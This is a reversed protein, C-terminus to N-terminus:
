TCCSIRISRIVNRMHGICSIVLGEDENKLRANRGGCACNFDSSAYPQRVPILSLGQRLSADGDAEISRKASEVVIEYNALSQLAPLHSAATWTGTGGVDHAASPGIIGVRIPAMIGPQRIPVISLLTM